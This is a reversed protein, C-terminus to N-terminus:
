EDPDAPVTRRGPRWGRRRGAPIIIGAAVIAGAIGLAGGVFSLAMTRTFTGRRPPTEIAVPQAKVVVKARGHEAPLVATVARYPNIMGYGSGVSTGGDATAEIRQKIQQATLNPHYSWVLAATAAVYPAAFSTGDKALYSNNPWTSIVAKGPAVVSVRSKTDTFNEVKGDRGVAGVSLVGDYSAPYLAQESAKKDQATNGAAAVVLAGTSQAYEVASRLFPYNPTQSSVNIVQAGLRAALRIGRALAQPDNNTESIATKISILQVKPAAGLFPVHANRRDQAAIIGAVMTGHGVCDRKGTHTEDYTDVHSLQRHTTDVGSDVVAVKVREGKTLSWADTFNLMQQPWPESTMESAPQGNAVNCQQPPAVTKIKTRTVTPAPKSSSRKPTPAAHAAAAVDAPHPTALAVPVTVVSALGLGSVVAFTALRAGGM